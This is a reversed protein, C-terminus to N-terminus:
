LVFNIPIIGSLAAEPYSVSLAEIETSPRILKTFTFRGLDPLTGKKVYEAQEIGKKIEGEDQLTSKAM